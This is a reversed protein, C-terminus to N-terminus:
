QQKLASWQLIILVNQDTRILDNFGDDVVALFDWRGVKKM